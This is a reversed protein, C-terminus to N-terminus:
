GPSPLKAAVAHRRLVLTTVVALWVSAYVLSTLVDTV